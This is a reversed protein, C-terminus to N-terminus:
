MTLGCAIPAWPPPTIYIYIADILLTTRNENNKQAKSGVLYKTKGNEACRFCYGQKRGPVKKLIM